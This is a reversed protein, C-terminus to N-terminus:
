LGMSDPYGVQVKAEGQSGTEVLSIIKTTHNSSLKLELRTVTLKPLM